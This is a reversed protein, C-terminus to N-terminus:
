LPFCLLIKNADRLRLLYKHSYFGLPPLFLLDLAVAPNSTRRMSFYCSPIIGELSVSLTFLLHELVLINGSWFYKSLAWCLSYFPFEVVVGLWLIKSNLLHHYSFLERPSPLPTPFEPYFSIEWSCCRLNCNAQHTQYCIQM